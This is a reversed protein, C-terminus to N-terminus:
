STAGNPARGRSGPQGTAPSATAFARLYPESRSPVSLRARARGTSFSRSSSLSSVHQTAGPTEPFVAHATRLLPSATARPLSNPFGGSLGAPGHGPPGRPLDTREGLPPKQTLFRAPARAKHAATRSEGHLLTLVWTLPRSHACCGRPRHPRSDGTSIGGAGARTENETPSEHKQSCPLGRSIRARGPTPAPTCGPSQTSGRGRARVGQRRM